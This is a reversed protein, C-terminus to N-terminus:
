LEGDYGAVEAGARHSDFTEKAEVPSAGSLLSVQHAKAAQARNYDGNMGIFARWIAGFLIIEHWSQPIPPTANSSTLDALVTWYRLTVTYVLDPTRWLRIGNSERFYLEPKGRDDVHNVFKQEFVDKEIRDLPNHKFSNPDEIAVQQLAEFPSPVQYFNEGVSTSFTAIVEKERFPFKDLLEWYSRNLYTDAGTKDSADANPLTVTDDGELGIGERLSRRLATIDLTM